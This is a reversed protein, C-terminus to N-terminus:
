YTVKGTRAAAGSMNEYLALGGGRNESLTQSKGKTGWKEMNNWTLLGQMKKHVDRSNKLM